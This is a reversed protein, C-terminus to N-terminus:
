RSAVLMAYWAGEARGKRVRRMVGNGQNTKRDTSEWLVEVERFGAEDLLERLEPLSWLRWYYTFANRMRTGDPFLFHIKCLIHHTLPDFSAVEWEYSFGGVKWTESGEESVEGGGSVDMVFLGGNGLV